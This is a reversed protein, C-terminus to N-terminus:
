PMGPKGAPVDGVTSPRAMGAMAPQAVIGLAAGQLSTQKEVYAAWAGSGAAAEGALKQGGSGSDKTQLRHPEPVSSAAPEVQGGGGTTNEAPTRKKGGFVKALWALAPLILGEMVCRIDDINM